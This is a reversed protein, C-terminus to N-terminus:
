HNLYNLMYLKSEANEDGVWNKFTDINKEVNENWWTQKEM